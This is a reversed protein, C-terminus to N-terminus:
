PKASAPALQRWSASISKNSSTNGRIIGTRGTSGHCRESLRYVSAIAVGAAVGARGPRGAGGRFMGPAPRRTRGRPNRRGLTPPSPSGPRGTRCHADPCIADFGSRSPRPRASSDRVALPRRASRDHSRSAPLGQTRELVVCDPRARRPSVRLCSAGRRSVDWRNSGRLLPQRVHPCPRRRPGCSGRDLHRQAARADRM